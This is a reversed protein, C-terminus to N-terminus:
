SDRLLEVPSPTDIDIYTPVMLRPTVTVRRPAPFTDLLPMEQLYVLYRARSFSFAMMGRQHLGFEVTTKPGANDLSGPIKFWDWLEGKELGMFCLGLALFVGALCSVCGPTLHLSPGVVQVKLSSAM